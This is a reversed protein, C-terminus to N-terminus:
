SGPVVTTRSGGLAWLRSCPSPWASALGHAVGASVVCPHLGPAIVVSVGTGRGVAVLGRMWVLLFRRRPEGPALDAASGAGAVVLLVVTAPEGAVEGWPRRGPMGRRQVAGVSPTGLMRRWPSRVRRGWPRSGGSQRVDRAAARLAASTGLPWCAVVGRHARGLGGRAAGGRRAALALAVRRGPGGSPSAAGRLWGRSRSFSTGSGGVGRPSRGAVSVPPPPPPPHHPHVQEQRSPNAGSDGAPLSAPSSFFLTTGTSVKMQIGTSVRM